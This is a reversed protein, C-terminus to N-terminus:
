VYSPGGPWGGGDKGRRLTAPGVSTGGEHVGAASREGENGESAFEYSWEDGLEADM